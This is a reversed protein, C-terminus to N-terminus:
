NMMSTRSDFKVGYSELEQLLPLYIGPYNPIHVGSPVKLGQLIKLALIGMPLGVLRSMATDHADQGIYSMSSEKKYQKGELEYMFQHQMLIMDREKPQLKWKSELIHQLVDASSNVTAPLPQDSFLDLYELRKIQSQTALLGYHELLGKLDQVGPKNRSIWERFSYVAEVRDEDNTVGMELLLDWAECFGSYRITGRYISQINDLQYLDLYKLSDRNPYVEFPGLNPFNWIEVNKFVQHYPLEKVLGGELFSAGSKGALVVNRPNWTIKYGWPNDKSEPAVVGGTASKFGMIKASSRLADIEKLASMHDLGPDLGLEGMIMVGNSIAEDHLAEIEKSIYSATITHKKYEVADKAILHHLHPPMLSIIIDHKRILDKRADTDFLNLQVAQSTPYNATKEQALQLSQDVVSVTLPISKQQMLYDILAGSSRGAGFVLVKHMSGLLNKQHLAM